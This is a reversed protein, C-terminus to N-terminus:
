DTRVVAASDQDLLSRHADTAAIWLPDSLDVSLDRLCRVPVAWGPHARDPAPCAFTIVSGAREVTDDQELGDAYLRTGDTFVQMQADCDPCDLAEAFVALVGGLTSNM